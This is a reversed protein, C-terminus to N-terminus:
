LGTLTRIATQMGQPGLAILQTSLHLGIFLLSIRAMQCLGIRFM